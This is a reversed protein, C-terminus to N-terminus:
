YTTSGKVFQCDFVNIKEIDNKKDILDMLIEVCKKAMEAIPQEMTTIKSLSVDNFDGDYSLVQVDEPVRINKEKLKDLLMQALICNSVFVSDFRPYKTLLENILVMEEGHKIEENVVLPELGKELMIDLYAKERLSVESELTSKSGLFAVHKGGHNLLYEVGQRTAAYNNSTVIPIGPALHRDISVLALNDFEKEDHKYHTVFIAGDAENQAIRGLIEKEKEIRHQSTALLLSYHRKDAELEIASVLSSFFPHNIVPVVVAIVYTKNQSFKKGIVNPVYHLEEIAKLVKQKTKDSIQPNGNLVRSVTGIGVGSRKAVDKITPSKMVM